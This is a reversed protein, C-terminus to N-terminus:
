YITHGGMGPHLHEFLCQRTSRSLRGNTVCQHGWNCASNWADRAPIVEANEISMLELKKSIETAAALSLSTKGQLAKIINALDGMDLYIDQIQLERMRNM